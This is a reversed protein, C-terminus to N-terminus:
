DGNKRKLALAKGADTLWSGGGRGEKSAVLGRNVLDKLPRKFSQGDAGRGEALEAIEDATKRRAPDTAKAQLMAQLIDYQRLSLALEQEPERVTSQPSANAATDNETLKLWAILNDKGSQLAYDSFGIPSGYGRTLCIESNSEPHDVWLHEIGNITEWRLIPKRFLTLGLHNIQAVNFSGLSDWNPIDIAKHLQGISNFHTLVGLIAVRLELRPESAM